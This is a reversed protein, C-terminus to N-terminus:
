AASRHSVKRRAAARRVRKAPHWALIDDVAIELAAAISRLAAASGPKKDGEIASLYSRAIGAEGALAVATMKRFRRWERVPNAGAVLRAAMAHPVYVRRERTAAADAAVLADELDEVRQRLRATEFRDNM